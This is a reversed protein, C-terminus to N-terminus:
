KESVPQMALQIDGSMVAHVQGFDDQVHLLGDDDPGLSIGDVRDGRISVWAMRRGKMFDRERWRGIVPGFGRQEFLAVELLLRDRITSFLTQVDEKHGSEIYLSTASERLDPTFDERGTNVNLGIGVVAFFDRGQGTVSSSETLIGGCKRDNFYIDNPWKLGPQLAYHLTIAEAVALGAVFTLRPYEMPELVPRLIISCYLGTGSPSQWSKGIRGRGNTQTRAIISAGHEGGNEAVQIAYRNTSDITEFYEIKM